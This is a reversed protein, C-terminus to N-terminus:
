PTLAAALADVLSRAVRGDADLTPNFITIDLGTAHGGAVATGLVATLEEWTLGDPLRYDVAPMVADDLVDVDLHVWFGAPGDEREAGLDRAFYAIVAALTAFHLLVDFALDPARYGLLRPVISLHASSSIPLFGTLGQVIGLVLARLM